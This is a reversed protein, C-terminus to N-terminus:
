PNETGEVLPYEGWSPAVKGMMRLIESQVREDGMKSVFVPHVESRVICIEGFYDTVQRGVAMLFTLGPVHFRYYRCFEVRLHVPFNFTLVPTVLGSVVVAVATTEPFSTEGLLYRRITDQYRDGLEVHEYKRESAWWDVVSARWVVSACFYILPDIELGRVSYASYITEEEGAHVPAAQNLLERLRFVGRGRYCHRLVWNEGNQDFRKECEACLLKQVAQRSTQRREDASVLVPHAGKTGARVLRYLAKPVFHSELLERDNLCLRCRGVMRPGM